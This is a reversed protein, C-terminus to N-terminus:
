VAPTQEIRQKLAEFDAEIKSSRLVLPERREPQAPLEIKLDGLNYSFEM